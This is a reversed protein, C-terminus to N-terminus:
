PRAVDGSHQRKGRHLLRHDGRPRTVSPRTDASERTATERIQHLLHRFQGLTQHAQHGVPDAFGGPHFLLAVPQRSQSLKGRAQSMFEVIGGRGGFAGGALQAVDQLADLVRAVFQAPAIEGGRLFRFDFLQFSREHLLSSGGGSARVM